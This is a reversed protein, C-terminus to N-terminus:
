VESIIRDALSGPEATVPVGKAKRVRRPGPDPVGYLRRVWSSFWTSTCARTDFTLSPDVGNPHAVEKWGEPLAAPLEGARDPMELKVNKGCRDCTLELVIVAKPEYIQKGM